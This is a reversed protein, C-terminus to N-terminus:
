QVSLCDFVQACALLERAHKKKRKKKEKKHACSTRQFNLLRQNTLIVLTLTVVCFETVIHIGSACIHKLNFKFVLILNVTSVTERDM